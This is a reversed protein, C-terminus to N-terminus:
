FSIAKEVFKSICSGM